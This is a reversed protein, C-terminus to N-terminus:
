KIEGTEKHPITLLTKGDLDLKLVQQVSVAAGILVEKDGEKVLALSHLAKTGAGFSKAETIVYVNGAGDVAVGGHTPGVNAGDPMAAFGPVTEFTFQGNGTVQVSTVVKGAPPNEHGEHGQAVMGGLLMTTIITKKM